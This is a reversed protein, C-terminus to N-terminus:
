IIELYCSVAVKWSTALTWCQLIKFGVSFSKVILFRRACQSFKKDLLSLIVALTLTWHTLDSPPWKTHKHPSNIKKFYFFNMIIKWFYFSFVEVSKIMEKYHSPKQLNSFCLNLSNPMKNDITMETFLFSSTLQCHSM